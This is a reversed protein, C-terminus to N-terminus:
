GILSLPMTRSSMSWSFTSLKFTSQSTGNVNNLNQAATNCPQDPWEELIMAFVDTPVELVETPQNAYAKEEAHAKYYIYVFLTPVLDNAQCGSLFLVSVPNRM